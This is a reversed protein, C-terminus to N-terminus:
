GALRSGLCSGFLLDSHDVRKPNSDSRCSGILLVPRSTGMTDFEDGTKEEDVGTDVDLRGLLEFIRREASPPLSTGGQGGLPQECDARQCIM